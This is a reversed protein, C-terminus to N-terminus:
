HNIKRFFSFRVGGYKRTDFLNNNGSFDYKSSHEIIFWGEPKLLDYKFVLDPLNNIDQMNYPPDAFIIDYKKKTSKLYFFVDTKLVKASNIKLGSIVKQIYKYHMKDKEIMEVYRVNRSIFEFGISGTGSFLDLIDLDEFEFYNQLINFLGTKAFDTTPRLRFNSPPSFRLGKYKGSIIRM